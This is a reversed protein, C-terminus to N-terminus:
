VLIQNLSTYSPPNISLSYMNRSTDISPRYEPLTEYIKDFSDSLIFVPLKLFYNDSDKPSKAEVKIVIEHRTEVYPTTCDFKVSHSHIPFDISRDFLAPVYDNEFLARYWRKEVNTKSSEPKRYTTIEKIACNIRVDVNSSLPICRINIPIVDGLGYVKKHAFVEINVLNSIAESLIIPDDEQPYFRKVLVEKKTTLNTQFHPREAVATLFYHCRVVQTSITEMLDGDLAFEFPFEHEGPPLIHYNPNCELLILSMDALISKFRCKRNLLAASYIWDVNSEGLLSLKLSRIRTARKLHVVVTGKLAKGASTSPCGYLSFYPNNLHIKIFPGPM